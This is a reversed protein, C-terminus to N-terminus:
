EPPDPLPLPCCGRDICTIWPMVRGVALERVAGGPHDMGLASALQWQSISQRWPRSPRHISFKIGYRDLERGRPSDAIVASTWEGKEQYILWYSTGNAPLALRAVPKGGHNVFKAVVRGGALQKEDLRYVGDQPEISVEVGEELSARASAGPNVDYVQKRALELVKDRNQPLDSIPFPVPAPIPRDSGGGGGGGSSYCGTLTLFGALALLRVSPWHSRDM